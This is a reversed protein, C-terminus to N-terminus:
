VTTRESETDLPRMGVAEVVRQEAFGALESAARVADPSVAEFVHFCTEDEPVFISRVYRVRQGEDTVRTAADRARVLAERVDAAGKRPAYVEVMYERM